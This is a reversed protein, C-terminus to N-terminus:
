FSLAVALEALHNTYRLSERATHQWEYSLQLAAFNGLAQSIAVSSSHTSAALRYAIYPTDFTDIPGFDKSIKVIDPRPPVAYSNVDGHRFKYGVAIQMSSTIALTGRLSAAHAEQDFRVDRAAFHEYEYAAELAFRETLRLGGRIGPRVEWGSRRAEAFDAYSAKTEARIWPANKGLGFRYRLNAGLGPRLNNLGDYTAWVHSEVEAFVGLRVDDTLQIGQGATIVTRWAADDLVDESRNSRSVNSDYLGGSRLDFVWNGRAPLTPLLTVAVLLLLFKGASVSGAVREPQTKVCHKM